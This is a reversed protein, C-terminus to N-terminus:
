HSAAVYGLLFYPKPFKKIIIIKVIFYEDSM